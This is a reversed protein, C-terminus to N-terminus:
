RRRDTSREDLVGLMAAADVTEVSFAGEGIVQSPAVPWRIGEGHDIAGAVIPRGAEASLEIQQRASEKVHHAPWLAMEASLRETKLDAIKARLKEIAAAHSDGKRLTVAHNVSRLRRDPAIGAIFDVTRKILELTPRRREARDHEAADFDTLESNMRAIGERATLVVANNENVHPPTKLSREVSATEIAIAARLDRRRDSAAHTAAALADAEANLRVFKQRAPLPLRDILKRETDTLMRRGKGAEGATVDHFADACERM